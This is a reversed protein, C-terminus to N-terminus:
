SKVNESKPDLAALCPPEVGGGRMAIKKSPSNFLAFDPLAILLLLKLTGIFFMPIGSV